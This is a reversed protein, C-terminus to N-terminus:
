AGQDASRGGGGFKVHCVARALDSSRGIKSISTSLGMKPTQGSPHAEAKRMGVCLGVFGVCIGRRWQDISRGVMSGASAGGDDEIISRRGCARHSPRSARGRSSGSTTTSSHASAGWSSTTTAVAAALLPAPPPARMRTSWHM